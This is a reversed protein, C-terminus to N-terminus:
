STRLGVLREFRPDGALVKFDDDLRAQVRNKPQLEIAKQLYILSADWDGQLGYAAALAYHVHEQNPVMKDSKSLYQIAHELERSNLAAIGRLYSDEATKPPAQQRTKQECIRLHMSAREAVERVPSALVKEFFTSAKEYNRKRFYGLAIEFNKLAADYDARPHM